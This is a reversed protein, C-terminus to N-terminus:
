TTNQLRANRKDKKKRTELICKKYEKYSNFTKIRGTTVDMCSENDALEYTNGALLIYVTYGKNTMDTLFAHLVEKVEMTNDISHGSDVADLLIWRENTVPQVYPHTLDRLKTFQDTIRGTKIFEPMRKFFQILSININEGESASMRASATEFDEHAISTGVSRTEPDANNFYCVPINEKELETQINRMLTSKGSGNCGVLVTLGSSFLIERFFCLSFGEGFPDRWTSILRTAM